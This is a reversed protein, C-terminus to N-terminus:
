KKIKKREFVQMVYMGPIECWNLLDSFFAPMDVVKVEAGLSLSMRHERLLLLGSGM